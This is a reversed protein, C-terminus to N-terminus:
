EMIEAVTPIDLWDAGGNGKDDLWYFLGQLVTQIIYGNGSDDIIAGGSTTIEGVTPLFLLQTGAISTLDTANNPPTFQSTYVPQGIVYRFNRVPGSWAYPNTQDHDGLPGGFFNWQGGIINTSDFSAAFTRTDITQPVGNVYLTIDGNYRVMAFHYWTNSTIPVYYLPSGIIAVGGGDAPVNASLYFNGVGDNLIYFSFASSGADGTSSMINSIFRSPIAWLEICFDSTGPLTNNFSANDTSNM